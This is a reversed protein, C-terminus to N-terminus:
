CMIDAKKRSSICQHLDSLLQDVIIIIITIIPTTIYIIYVNRHDDRDM